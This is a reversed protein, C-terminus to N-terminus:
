LTNLLLVDRKVNLKPSTDLMFCPGCPLFCVDPESEHPSDGRKEETPPTVSHRKLENVKQDKLQDQAVHNDLVVNNAKPSVQLFEESDHVKHPPQSPRCRQPSNSQIKSKIKSLSAVQKATISNASPDDGSATLLCLLFPVTLEDDIVENHLIAVAQLSSNFFLGKEYVRSSTKVNLNYWAKELTIRTISAASVHCRYKM